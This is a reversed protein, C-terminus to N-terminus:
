RRSRSAKRRKVKKAKTKRALRTLSRDVDRIAAQLSKKHDQLTQKLKEKQEPTLDDVDLYRLAPYIM